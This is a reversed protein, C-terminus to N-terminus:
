NGEAERNAYSEIAQLVNLFNEETEKTIQGDKSIADAFRVANIKKQEATGHRHIDYKSRDEESLLSEIVVANENDIKQLVDYEEVSISKLMMFGSKYTLGLAKELDQCCKKGKDDYDFLAIFRFGWGMLISCLFNPHVM